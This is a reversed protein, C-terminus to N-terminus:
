LHGSITVNGLFPYINLNLQIGKLKVALGVELRWRSPLILTQSRTDPMCPLSRQRGGVNVITFEGSM